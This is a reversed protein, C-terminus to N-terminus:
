YKSNRDVRPVLFSIAGNVIAIIFIKIYDNDIIRFLTFQLLFSVAIVTIFFIALRKM